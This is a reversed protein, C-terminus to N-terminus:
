QIHHRAGGVPKTGEEISGIDFLMSRSLAWTSRKQGSLPGSLARLLRLASEGGQPVLELRGAIRGTRHETRVPVGDAEVGCHDRGVDRRKFLGHSVRFAALRARNGLM